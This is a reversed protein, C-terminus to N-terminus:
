ARVVQSQHRTKDCVSPRDALIPQHTRLAVCHGIRNKQSATRRLEAHEIKAMLRAHESKEQAPPRYLWLELEPAITRV